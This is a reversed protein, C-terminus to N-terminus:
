NNGINITPKNGKNRSGFSITGFNPAINIENADNVNSRKTKNHSGFSINENSIDDLDSNNADLLKNLKDDINVNNEINKKPSKTSTTISKPTTTKATAFLKKNILFNREKKAKDSTSNIIEAINPNISVVSATSHTSRNDESYKSNKKHQEKKNYNNDLSNIINDLHKNQKLLETTQQKDNVHNTNRFTESKQHAMKRMMELHKMEDMYKMQRIYDIERQTMRQHKEDSEQVHNQDGTPKRNAHHSSESSLILNEKFKKMNANGKDMMKEMKKYELEKEKIMKLDEAKQTAENHQKSFYDNTKSDTEAKKRLNKLTTEDSKVSTAMSNINKMGPIARSVQMSLAAGSIMLLLRMEPAMQKGPKNYKEYIDGLVSYYNQMDSGIVDALRDLKIDFPNYSDNIMEVGKIIGILMHSMWQVSNQKSKIDSHLKYEYQMMKLDSDLNYNQSLHVGCQKLEGLKRLMDLKILVLEEKSLADDKNKNHEAHNNSKDSDDNKRKKDDHNDSLTTKDVNHQKAHETDKKFLEKSKDIYDDVDSDLKDDHYDDNNKDFETKNDSRDGKHDAFNWRKNTDVLKDTNAIMGVLLDTDTSVLKDIASEEKKNM